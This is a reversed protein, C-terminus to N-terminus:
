WCGRGFLIFVLFLLWWGEEAAKNKEAQANQKKQQSRVYRLPVVKLGEMKGFETELESVQVPQLSGLQSRLAGGIWRYIEITMLRAEDRVGKDRDAFLPSIKKVLPKVNIVKAGFEKLAQTVAGICGSVIKPNKQEMGKVLEEVVAEQKEIEIYMLTLQLALERTRSKPAAICKAVVGSMVESVTKGAHAYNEIYALTAELGKEQGMANSDTVFKKVLGLYKSFEPSKDDDIQRFLKTIEEYGNVRAKWLKHTCREDVPLKRYEEDEM